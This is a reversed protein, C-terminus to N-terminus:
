VKGKNPNTGRIEKSIVKGENNVAYVYAEGTGIELTAVEEDPINELYKVLARLANGSSAIIVNKGDKLKPEIESQFYPIEREYVQKLSEGNPVPYDWGRRLKQFEEEGLEKKVEWKNKATFDGYNRENLAQNSVIPPTQNIVKLIEDLTQQARVLASAYAFDFHIDKLEEATHRAEEFGEPALPPNDWGAWIGKKNYESLGHRVLVLTAMEFTNHLFYFGYDLSSM